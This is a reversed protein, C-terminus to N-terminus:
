EGEVRCLHGALKGFALEEGLEWDFCCQNGQLRWIVLALEPLGVRVASFDPVCAQGWGRDSDLLMGFARHLSPQEGPGLCSLGSCLGGMMRSGQAALGVGDRLTGSNNPNMLHCNPHEM